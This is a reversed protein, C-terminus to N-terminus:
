PQLVVENPGTPLKFTLGRQQNARMTAPVDLDAIPIKKTWTGSTWYNSQEYLADGIVAYGNTVESRGDRFILLTEAPVANGARQATGDGNAAANPTMQFHDVQVWYDGQLELLLPKAPPQSEQPTPAAAPAPPQAVVISVPQTAVPEYGLDSYFSIPAGAFPHHHPFAPRPGTTTTVGFGAFGPTVSAPRSFGAGGRAQAAAMGAFAATTVLCKVLLRLRRM